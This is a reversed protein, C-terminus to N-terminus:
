RPWGPKRRYTGEQTAKVLAGGREIWEVLIAALRDCGIMTWFRESRFWTFGEM